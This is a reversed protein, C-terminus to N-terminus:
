GAAGGSGDASGSGEFSLRPTGCISIEEFSLGGIGRSKLRETDPSSVAGGAGARRVGDLSATGADTAATGGDDEGVVAVSADQCCACDVVTSVWGAIADHLRSLPTSEARLRRRVAAAHLKEINVSGSASSNVRSLSPRPRGPGPGPGAPGSPAVGAGAPGKSPTMVVTRMAGAAGQSESATGDGSRRPMRDPDLHAGLCAMFIDRGNVADIGFEVYSRGTRVFIRYAAGLPPPPPSLPAAPAGSGSCRPTSAPSSFFSRGDGRGGGGGRGGGARAPAEEDVGLIDGLLIVTPGEEVGHVSGGLSLSGDADDGTGFRGSPSRGCGSGRSSARNFASAASASRNRIHGVRRRSSSRGRSRAASRGTASSRADDASGSASTRGDSLGSPTRDCDYPSPFRGAPGPSPQGHHTPPLRNHRDLNAARLPHPSRNQRQLPPDPGDGLSVEVMGEGGDSGHPSPGRGAPAGPSSPPTADMSRERRRMPTAVIQVRGISRSRPLAAPVPTLVVAPGGEPDDVFSVLTEISETFDPDIYRDSRRVRARIQVCGSEGTM